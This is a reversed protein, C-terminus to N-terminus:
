DPLSVRFVSEIKIPDPSYVSVPQASTTGSPSSGTKLIYLASGLLLRFRESIVIGFQNHRVDVLLSSMFVIGWGFTAKKQISYPRLSVNGMYEPPSPM